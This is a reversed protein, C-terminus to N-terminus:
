ICGTACGQPTMTEDGLGQPMPNQPLQAGNVVASGQTLDVDHDLNPAIPAFHCLFTVGLDCPDGAPDAAAPAALLVAGCLAVGLGISGVVTM